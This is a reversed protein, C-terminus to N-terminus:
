FTVGKLKSKVLVRLQRKMKIVHGKSRKYKMAIDDDANIDYQMNLIIDKFMSNRLNERITMELRFIEELSIGYKKSLSYLSNQITSKDRIVKLLDQKLEDPANFEKLDFMRNIYTCLNKQELEDEFSLTCHLQSKEISITENWGLENDDLDINGRNDCVKRKQTSLLQLVRNFACNIVYWAYTSFCINRETDFWKSVQKHFAIVIDQYFDNETRDLFHAFKHKNYSVFNRIILDWTKGNVGRKMLIINFIRDQEKKSTAIRYANVLQKEDRDAPINNTKSDSQCVSKNKQSIVKVPKKVDCAQSLISNSSLKFKFYKSFVFLLQQESSVGGLCRIKGLHKQKAEEESIKSFSEGFEVDHELLQLRKGSLYAKKTGDDFVTFFKTTKYKIHEPLISFFNSSINM